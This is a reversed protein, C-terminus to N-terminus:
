NFNIINIKLLKNFIFENSTKYSISSLLILSFFQDPGTNTSIFICFLQNSMLIESLLEHKINHYHDPGTNTSVIQNKQWLLTRWLKQTEGLGKHAVPTGQTEGRDSSGRYCCPRCM